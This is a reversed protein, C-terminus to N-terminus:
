QMDKVEYISEKISMQFQHTSTDIWGVLFALNIELRTNSRTHM